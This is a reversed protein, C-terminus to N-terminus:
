KRKKKLEYLRRLFRQRSWLLATTKKLPRQHSSVFEPLEAAIVPRLIRCKVVRSELVHQAVAPGSLVVEAEPLEEFQEVPVPQGRMAGTLKPLDEKKVRMTKVVVRRRKVLSEGGEASAAPIDGTVPDSMAIGEL